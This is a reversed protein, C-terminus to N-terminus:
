GRYAQAINEIDQLVKDAFLFAEDKSSFESTQVQLELTEKGKEQGNLRLSAEHSLRLNALVERMFDDKRTSDIVGGINATFTYRRMDPLEDGLWEWTM